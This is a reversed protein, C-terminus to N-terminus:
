LAVVYRGLRGYTPFTGGISGVTLDGSTQTHGSGVTAGNGTTAGAVTITGTSPVYDITLLQSRGFTIAGTSVQSVGGLVAQVVVNAGSVVIALYSSVAAWRFLIMNSAGGGAVMEASTADLAVEVRLGDTRFTDPYSGSAYTLMDLARTLAAGSTIVESSLWRGSEAQVGWCFFTRAVGDSGNQIVIQPTSAGAGISLEADVRTWPSTVPLDGSLVITAGDKQRIGLRVFGAVGPTYVWGSVRYLTNDASAFGLTARLRDTASAGFTITQADADGDPATGGAATASAGGDATYGTFVVGNNVFNSRSGETVLMMEGLGDGRNDTRRVNTAVSQLFAGTGANPAGIYQTAVSARTFTGGTSLDLQVVAPAAGGGGGIGRFGRRREVGIGPRRMLARGLEDVGM